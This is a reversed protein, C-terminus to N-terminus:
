RRDAREGVAGHWAFAYVDAMRGSKDVWAGGDKPWCGKRPAIDFRPSRRPPPAEGDRSQRAASQKIELGAGSAVRECDWAAWDWDDESTLRWREGLALAIMCEVYEGRRVNNMVRRGYRRSLMDLIREHVAEEGSM